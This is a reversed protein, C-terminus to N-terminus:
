EDSGSFAALVPNELSRLEWNRRSSVVHSEVHTYGCCSYTFGRNHYM